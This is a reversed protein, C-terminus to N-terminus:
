VPMAEDIYHDYTNLGLEIVALKIYRIVDHPNDYEFHMTRGDDTTEVNMHHINQQLDFTVEASALVHNRKDRLHYIRPNHM